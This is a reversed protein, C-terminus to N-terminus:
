PAYLQDLELLRDQMFLLFGELTDSGNNRSWPWKRQDRLMAGSSDLQTLISDLTGLLADDSLPGARLQRWRAAIRADLDPYLTLLADYERRHRLPRDEPSDPLLVFGQNSVHDLGFALDTDWPLLFVRYGSRGEPRLIYYANRLSLNDYLSAFLVFVDMNLWSDLDIVSPDSLTYFPEILALSAAEDYPSSRVTFADELCRITLVNSGKFLLDRSADLALYKADVRRQLLYLGMYEGDFVVEVYAGSSMHASGDQDAMANWLDQIFKERIRLDDQGMSNLIWDDDSGLGAFALNRNRGYANKLSLKWSGKKFLRTGMGRRHWDASSLQPKDSGPEHVLIRGEHEAYPDDYNDLSDSIIEFVPLPTFMVRCSSASGDPYLLLLTFAHGAAVAASMDDFAPDPAFCLRFANDAATLWGELDSSRMGPTVRASLLLTGTERDFAARQGNLLVLGTVYAGAPALAAYAQEDLISAGLCTNADRPPPAPDLRAFLFACVPLLLLCVAAGALRWLPPRNM